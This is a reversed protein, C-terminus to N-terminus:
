PTGSKKALLSLTASRLRQCDAPDCFVSRFHRPQEYYEGAPTTGRSVFGQAECAAWLVEAFEISRDAIAARTAPSLALEEGQEPHLKLFILNLVLWRANEFFAKRIGVSTRAEARM